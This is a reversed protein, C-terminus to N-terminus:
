QSFNEFSQSMLTACNVGYKTGVKRVIINDDVDPNLMKFVEIMHKCVIGEMAIPCDCQAWASDPAYITWVRMRNNLFGVYAIDKDICILVNTDRIANARIYSSLVIGKQKTNRIFGFAKCQIIYWYHLLM